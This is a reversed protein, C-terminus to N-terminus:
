CAVFSAYVTGMSAGGSLMVATNGHLRRLMQFFDIKDRLQAPTAQPLEAMLTRLLIEFATLFEEPPANGVYSHNFRRPILARALAAM